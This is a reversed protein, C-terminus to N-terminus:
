RLSFIITLQFTASLAQGNVMAPAFRWLRAARMAEAQLAPHGSAVQVDTPVGLTDITMRLVVPGQVRAARALSPYVPQVQSLIRVQAMTMETPGLNGTGDPVGTGDGPGPNKSAGIPLSPDFARQGGQDVTPLSTPTDSPIQNELPTPPAVPADIPRTGDGGGAKSHWEMPSPTRLLEAKVPNLEVIVGPPPTTTYITQPVVKMHAAAFGAGGLLAYCGFAIFASMGRSAPPAMSAIAHPQLTPPLLVPRGDASRIPGFRRLLNRPRLGSPRLGSGLSASAHSPISM